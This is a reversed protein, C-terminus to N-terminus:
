TCTHQSDTPSKIKFILLLEYVLSRCFVLNSWIESLFGCLVLNINTVAGRFNIKWCFLKAALDHLELWHTVIAASYNGLLCFIIGTIFLLIHVFNIDWMPKCTAVAM